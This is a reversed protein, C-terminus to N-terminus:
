EATIHWWLSSKGQFSQSSESSTLWGEVVMMEKCQVYESISILPDRHSMGSAGHSLGQSQMYGMALMILPLLSQHAHWKLSEWQM